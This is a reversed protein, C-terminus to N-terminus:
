SRNHLEKTFKNNFDYYFVSSRFILWYLIEPIQIFGNIPCETNPFYSYLTFSPWWFENLVYGVYSLCPVIWLHRWVFKVWFLGKQGRLWALIDRKVKVKTGLAVLPPLGGGWKNTHRWLHISWLIGVWWCPSRTPSKKEPQTVKVISPGWDPSAFPSNRQLFCGLLSVISFNLFFM